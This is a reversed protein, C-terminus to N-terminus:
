LARSSRAGQEEEEEEEYEITLDKNLNKREGPSPQKDKRLTAFKSIYENRITSDILFFNFLKHLSIIINLMNSSIFILIICCYLTIM